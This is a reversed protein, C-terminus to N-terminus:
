ILWKCRWESRLSEILKGAQEPELEGSDPITTRSASPEPIAGSGSGTEQQRHWGQGTTPSILTEDIRARIRQVEQYFKMFRRRLIMTLLANRVFTVNAHTYLWNMKQRHRLQDELSLCQDDEILKYHALIMLMKQFSVGKLAKTEEGVKGLEYDGSSLAARDTNNPQGLGGRLATTGWRFLRKAKTFGTGPIPEM